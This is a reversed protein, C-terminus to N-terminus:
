YKRPHWTGTFGLHSYANAHNTFLLVHVARSLSLLNWIELCEARSPLLAKLGVSRGGKGGEFYEQFNMKKPQTSGLPVTSGSPNHFNWHYRRFEFGRVEWVTQLKVFYIEM